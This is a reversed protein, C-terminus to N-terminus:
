VEIKYSSLTLKAKDRATTLAGLEIDNLVEELLYLNRENILMAIGGKNYINMLEVKQAPTPYRGYIKTEIAFFLGSFSCIFDPIGARGYGNSAPMFYWINKHKAILKKVEAKVDSENRFTKKM